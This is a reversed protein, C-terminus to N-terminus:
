YCFLCRSYIASVTPWWSASDHRFFFLATLYYNMYLVLTHFMCFIISKNHHFLPGENYRVQFRYSYYDMMSCKQRKKGKNVERQVFNINTHFGDEGLPFLLPYQLAMLKPHINTIRQLGDEKSHIIIDRSKAPQEAHGVMIGAVEDSPGVQNERGSESTCLKLVIKLEVVESNEFRDRQVRFKKVLENHEDLMNMLGEVIQANVHDADDVGLWEMRNSVENETDYIYLQCFKPTEGDNPILSGFVHHNQGNLRYIYPGRGNNISHDVKGGTSTFSFMSNYIRTCKQFAPGSTPDMYLNMLFDPTPPTRPLDVTGKRCCISFVPAQNKLGKNVREENWMFAKCFPCQSLPKGLTAYEKPVAIFFCEM